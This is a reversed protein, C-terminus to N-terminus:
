GVVDQLRLVEDLGPSVRSWCRSSIKSGHFELGVGRKELKDAIARKYSTLRFDLWDTLGQLSM